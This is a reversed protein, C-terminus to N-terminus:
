KILKKRVRNLVDKLSYRINNNESFNDAKLLKNETKNILKLNPKIKM